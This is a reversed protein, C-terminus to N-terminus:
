VHAQNEMNPTPTQSKGLESLMLAHMASWTRDWSTTALLAEAAARQAEPRELAREIARVFEDPGTAITVAGAEGYPQVVDAIATSVVPRGAALYELTKTPSIFRTAENLAFPMLAVDWGALYTPLQEYRKGGLWHINPRRPLDSEEIKAVPGLM